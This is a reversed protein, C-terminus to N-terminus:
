FRKLRKIPGELKHPTFANLKEEWGSIVEIFRNDGRDDLLDFYEKALPSESAGTFMRHGRKQDRRFANRRREIQKPDTVEVGAIYFTLDEAMTEQFGFLLCNDKAFNGTFFTKRIKLIDEYTLDKNYNFYELLPALSYCDNVIISKEGLNICTEDDTMNLVPYNPSRYLLDNATKDETPVFLMSRLSRWAGVHLQGPKTRFFNGEGEYRYITDTKVVEGVYIDDRCVVYKKNEM